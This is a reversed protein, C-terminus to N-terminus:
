SMQHRNFLVLKSEFEQPSIHQVIDVQHVDRCFGCDVPPRFVNRNDVPM